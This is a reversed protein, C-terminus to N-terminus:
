VVLLKTLNVLNPMQNWPYSMDDLFNEMCQDNIYESGLNMNMNDDKHVEEEDDDVNGANFSSILSLVIVLVHSSAYESGVWTGM